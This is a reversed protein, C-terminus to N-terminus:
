ATSIIAPHLDQDIGRRPAPIAAFSFAEKFLV